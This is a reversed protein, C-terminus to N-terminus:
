KAVLFTYENFFVLGENGGYEEIRFLTGPEVWEVVCDELGGLYQESWNKKAIDELVSYPVGREIAVAIEQDLAMEECGWTSWGAGFGPSYVIGIKGEM